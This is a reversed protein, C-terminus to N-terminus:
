QSRAQEALKKQAEQVAALWQEPTRDRWHPVFRYIVGMDARILGNVTRMFTVVANHAEIDRPPPAGQPGDGREPLIENAILLLPAHPCCSVANPTRGRRQIFDMLVDHFQPGAAQLDGYRVVRFGDAGQRAVHVYKYPDDPKTFQLAHDYDDFFGQEPAPPLIPHLPHFDSGLQVPPRFFDRLSWNQTDETGCTDAEYGRGTPIREHLDNAIELMKPNKNSYAVMLLLDRMMMPSHVSYHIKKGDKPTRRSNLLDADESVVILSTWCEEIASTLFRIPMETFKTEMVKRAFQTSCCCDLVVFVNKPPTDEPLASFISRFSEVDLAKECFTLSDQDAHNVFVWVVADLDPRKLLDQMFTSATVATGQKRTFNRGLETPVTLPPGFISGRPTEATDGKITPLWLKIDEPRVKQALLLNCLQIASIHDAQSAFAPSGATILYGVRGSPAVAEGMDLLGFSINLVRNPWM